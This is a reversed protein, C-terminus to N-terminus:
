AGNLHRLLGYVAGGRVFLVDQFLLTSAVYCPPVNSYNNIRFFSDFLVNQSNTDTSRIIWYAIVM